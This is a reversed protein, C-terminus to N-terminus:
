FGLLKRNGKNCFGTKGPHLIGVWQSRGSGGWLMAGGVVGGWGSARGVFQIRGSVRGRSPEAWWRAGCVPGAWRGQLAGVGESAEGVAVGGETAGGM